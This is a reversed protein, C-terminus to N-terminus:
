YGEETSFYNPNECVDLIADIEMGDLLMQYIEEQPVGTDASLEKAFQKPTKATFGYESYISM